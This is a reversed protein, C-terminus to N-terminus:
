KGKGLPRKFYFLTHSVEAEEKHVAVLEWAQAGMENLKGQDVRGLRGRDALITYEWAGEAVVINADKVVAPVVFSRKCTGCAVEQGAADEPVYFSAGCQPCGVSLM